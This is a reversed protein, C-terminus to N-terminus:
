DVNSVAKLELLMLQAASQKAMKKNTATASIFDM